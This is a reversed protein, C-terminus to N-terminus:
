LYWKKKPDLRNIGFLIFHTEDFNKIFIKKLNIIEYYSYGSFVGEPWVFLTKKQNKIPESYRIM